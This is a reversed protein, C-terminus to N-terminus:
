FILSLILMQEEQERSILDTQIITILKFVFLNCRNLTGFQLLVAELGFSLFAM